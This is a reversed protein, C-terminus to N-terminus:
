AKKNYKADQEDRVEQNYTRDADNVANNADQAAVAAAEADARAADRAAKADESTKDSINYAAITGMYEAVAKNFRGTKDQLNNEYFKNASREINAAANAVASNFQATYQGFLQIGQDTRAERNNLTNPPEYIPQALPTRTGLHANNMAIMASIATLLSRGALNKIYAIGERGAQLIDRRVETEWVQHAFWANRWVEEARAFETRVNINAEYNSNQFQRVGDQAGEMQNKAGTQEGEAQRMDGQALGRKEDAQRYGEASTDYENRAETSAASADSLEGSRSNLDTRASEVSFGGSRM